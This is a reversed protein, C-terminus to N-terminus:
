SPWVSSYRLGKSLFTDTVADPGYYTLQSVHGPYYIFRQPTDQEARRFLMAGFENEDLGAANVIPNSTIQVPTSQSIDPRNIIACMVSKGVTVRRPTERKQREHVARIQRALLRAPAEPNRTRGYCKAVQRSINIKEAPKLKAGSWTLSGGVGALWYLFGHFKDAARDEWTGDEREANSIKDCFPYLEDPAPSLGFQAPNQLRQYGVCVFTARKTAEWESLAVGAPRQLKRFAPNAKEQLSALAYAIRGGGNYLPDLAWDATPENGIRALGTYAVTGQHRYFICKNEEDEFVSGDANTLRRDSVQVVFEKTMLSFILTM